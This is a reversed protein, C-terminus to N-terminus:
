KKPIASIPDEDDNIDKDSDLDDYVQLFGRFLPTTGTARFLYEGSTVEITTQEFSANHMQSAVFRNWILSYLQYM